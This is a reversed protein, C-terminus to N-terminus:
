HLIYVKGLNIMHNNLMDPLLTEDGGYLRQTSMKRDLQRRNEYTKGDLLQLTSHEM